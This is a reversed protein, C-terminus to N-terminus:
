RGDGPSADRVHQVQGSRLTVRGHATDVELGGDLAIGTARGSGSPQWVIDRGITRCREVYEDRPWEDSGSEFVQILGYAWVRALEEAASPGPDNEHIAGIGEPPGPWWLNLGVGIVVPGSGSAEVLIGGVKLESRMLDNPWKLECDVVRAVLVGAALPILPWSEQEWAPGVALSMALARPANQWQAGSRGRGMQQRDSIALVPDDQFSDRAVDQTSTAAELRIVSYPTAM